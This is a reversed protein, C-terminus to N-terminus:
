RFIKISDYRASLPGSYTFVGLYPDVGTGNWLNIYVHGPATPLTAASGAVTHVLIGDVYWKISKERWSITYDHFALSADFGLNILTEHGGIGNKFYNFQIKTTDKGLFEVDIEDHPSGTYIFFSSVTGSGAAPKMRVTFSGYQFTEFTRMEGCSYSKGGQATNDLALSLVSAGSTAHSQVWYCDFPLSNAFGDSVLWESVDVAEFDDEFVLGEDLKEEKKACSVALVMILVYIFRM